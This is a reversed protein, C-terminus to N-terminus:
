KLRPRKPKESGGVKSYKTPKAPKEETIKVTLTNGRFTTDNLEAVAKEAGPRSTIELFAYGKSKATAKDRVLKVTSVEAYISVLVALDMESVDPSLGGVFIKIM